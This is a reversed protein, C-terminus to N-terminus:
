WGRATARFGIFKDDSVAETWCIQKKWTMTWILRELEQRHLVRVCGSRVEAKEVGNRSENRMSCEVMVCMGIGESRPGAGDMARLGEDELGHGVGQHGEFVWGWVLYGLAAEGLTRWTQVECVKQSCDVVVGFRYLAEWAM